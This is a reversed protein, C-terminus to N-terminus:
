RGGPGRTQVEDAFEPWYQRLTATMDSHLRIVDGRHGMAANSADLRSPDSEGADTNIKEVNSLQRKIVGLAKQIKDISERETTM